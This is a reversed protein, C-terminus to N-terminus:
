HEGVVDAIMMAFNAVDAAEKQILRRDYAPSCVAGALEGAEELLRALLFLPDCTRWGGRHDNAKLKREMIEAFRSLEPRIGSSGSNL